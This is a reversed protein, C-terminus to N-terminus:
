LIKKLEEAIIKSVRIKSTPNPITDTSVVEKAGSTYIRYLANQNFLGHICSVYYERAKINKIANVITGGSDIMDDVVLVEKDDYSLSSRMEVEGPAIRKKELYDYDCGLVEAVNKAINLAGIDPSIVVPNKLIDKFYRGIEKSVDIEYSKSKFFKMIHSKHPNIVMVIDSFIDIIKAISKVSLAEGEQFRKDQRSYALYPIITIIEDAGLDKLTDGILLLEILDRDQRYTSQILICRKNKVDEDIKVYCEGDPFRKILIKGIPIKLLCSLDIAIHQSSTGSFILYEM